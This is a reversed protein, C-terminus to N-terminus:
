RLGADGTRPPQVAPAVAPVPAQVKATAVPAAPTAPKTSTPIATASSVPTVSPVLTSSAVATATRTATNTAIVTPTNTPATANSVGGHSSCAGQIGGSKSYLGDNCRVVYGNGAWFDTICSAVSCFDAPPDYRGIYTAPDYAQAPTSVQIGVLGVVLMIVAALFRFKTMM